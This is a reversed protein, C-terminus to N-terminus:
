KQKATKTTSSFKRIVENISTIGESVKKISQEQLYLMGTRRFHAAIEQLSKASKIAERLEDNIIITEFIGTRDTFGTGQCNNCLIPKGHKDYEVEGPRYLVKIKDSPINFKKFLGQNPQYAQRCESCLTRVLRQNIIATLTEAVIDKDKALKLWKGLAQIVSTADITAYVIKGEKAGQCALSVSQAEDCDAIGIIEPGMRLVAQLKQPYTTSGTDSLTFTHQTINPLEAAPQKELTNINNMFPDHNKLLAYLTTTIGNQKPGSIIVLGKELESLSQMPELQDPNLGIDKLTMLHYQELRTLKVQEGATSGATTVEWHTDKDEKSARFDGVQPKRKENTDLDALMKLYHIFHEMQEKPRPPQKISEGDVSYIVNYDEASPQFKVDSARRWIADDFIECAVQFGFSEPTKPKPLPVENRNATTFTIGRSAKEIKKDENIFISRIQEPTLVKEFDAVKSNRHMVYALSPAGVAIIYLLLGIIFMPVLLWVVLAVAGAAAIIATWFFTRTRVAQTDAHVWNVLPMWAFYMALMVIFKVLSIYGGYHVDAALLTPM